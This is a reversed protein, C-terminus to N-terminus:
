RDFHWLATRGECTISLRLISRHQECFRTAILREEAESESDIEVAGIKVM